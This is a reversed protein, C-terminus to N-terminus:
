RAMSATFLVAPWAAAWAPLFRNLGFAAITGLHFAGALAVFAVAAASGTLALPFACEFLIVAWSLAVATRQNALLRQLARPAGFHPTALFAPLARGTRWPANVLKVVGAVTYSLVAQAALYVLAARVVVPSTGGMHAVVLSTLVVMQMMDSGGNTSGRFRLNVLLSTGWLLPAVGGRVGALLLGAGALRVVLLVVFPRYALVPALWGLERSLTPWRWTGDDRLHRRWALLELSGQAVSIAALWEIWRLAQTAEVGAM